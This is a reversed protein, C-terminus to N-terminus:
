STHRVRMKRRIKISHCYRIPLFTVQAFILITPLQVFSHDLTPLLNFLHSLPHPVARDGLKGQRGGERVGGWTKRRETVGREQRGRRRKMEREEERERKCVCVGCVCACAYVCM